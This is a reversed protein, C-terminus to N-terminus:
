ARAYISAAEPSKKYLTSIVSITYISRSQRGPVEAKKHTGASEYIFALCLPVSIAFPM